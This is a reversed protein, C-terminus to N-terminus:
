QANTETELANHYELGKDGKIPWKIQIREQM